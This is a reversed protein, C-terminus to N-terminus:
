AITSQSGDITLTGINNNNYREIKIGEFSMSTISGHIQSKDKPTLKYNGEESSILEMDTFFESAYKLLKQKQAEKM